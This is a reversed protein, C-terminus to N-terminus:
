ELVSDLFMRVELPRNVGLGNRESIHGLSGGSSSGQIM